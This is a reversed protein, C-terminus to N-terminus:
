TPDSWGQKRLAKAALPCLVSRAHSLEAAGRKHLPLRVIDM